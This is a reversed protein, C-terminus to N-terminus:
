PERNKKLMWVAIFVYDIVTDFLISYVWAEFSYSIKKREKQQPLDPRPFFAEMWHAPKCRPNQLQSGWPNGISSLLCSNGAVSRLRSFFGKRFLPIMSVNRLNKRYRRKEEFTVERLEFSRRRACECAMGGNETMSM